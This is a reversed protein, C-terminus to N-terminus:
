ESLSAANFLPNEYQPINREIDNMQRTAQHAVYPKCKRTRWDQIVPAAFPRDNLEETSSIPEVRRARSQGNLFRGLWTTRVFVHYTMLSLTVAMLASVVYKGFTPIPLPGIAIQTLAVLPLHILYVWFSAESLYSMVANKRNGHRLSIAILGFTTTSAFVALLSALVALRVGTLRETLHEHILPLTVAFILAAAFLYRKGFRTQMQLADRHRYFIAGVFFYVGYYALKSLAPTFWQYFGLVIRTDCYLICACPIAPLLPKWVSQFVRDLRESLLSRFDNQKPGASRFRKNLWHVGCLILCYLYLNQLFWLHAVGRLDSRYQKPFGHKMFDPPYFLGDAIWGLVWISLCLPLICAYALLQPSLLRRNRGILFNREGQLKLLEYSCFGSMVFFLPMVFCEICWTLGDVATSPHDDKVAWVLNTMPKTMYPVGAHLLVVLIAAIARLADLGHLRSPASRIPPSPTLSVALQM